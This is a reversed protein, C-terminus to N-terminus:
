NQSQSVVAEGGTSEGVGLLATVMQRTVYASLNAVYLTILIVIIDVAVAPSAEPLTEISWRIPEDNVEGLRTSFPYRLPATLLALGNALALLPVFSFGAIFFKLSLFGVGRWTSAAEIYTRISGLAGDADEAVDDYPNIDTDLLKNALWREFRVAIRAAFLTALLIVLGIGM